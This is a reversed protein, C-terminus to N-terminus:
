TRVVLVPCPAHHLIRETTSGMLIHGVIGHGHTGVVILDAERDTAYKVITEHPVGILVVQEVDRGPLAKKVFEALMRRAHEGHRELITERSQGSAALIMPSVRDEVVYVLALVGGLRDALDAAQQVATVAPDSLDTAALITQYDAM